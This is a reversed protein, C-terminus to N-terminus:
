KKEIADWVHEATYVDLSLASCNMHQITEQELESDVIRANHLRANDEKLVSADDTTGAYLRVCTDLNDERYIHAVNERSFIHLDTIYRGKPAQLTTPGSNLWLQPEIEEHTYHCNDTMPGQLREHGGRASVGLHQIKIYYQELGFIMSEFGVQSPM